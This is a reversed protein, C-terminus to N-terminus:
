YYWITSLLLSFGHDEYYGHFSLFSFDCGIFVVITHLDVGNRIIGVRTWNPLCSYNVNWDLSFHGYRDDCTSPGKKSLKALKGQPSDQKKPMKIVRRANWRVVCVINLGNDIIVSQVLCQAPWENLFCQICARSSTVFIAFLKLSIM